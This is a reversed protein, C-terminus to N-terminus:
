LTYTTSNITNNLRRLRFTVNALNTETINVKGFIWDQINFNASRNLNTTPSTWIANPFITDLTITGYNTESKMELQKAEDVAFNSVTYASTFSIMFLTITIMVVALFLRAKLKRSSQKQEM